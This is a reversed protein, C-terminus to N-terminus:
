LGEPYKGFMERCRVLCVSILDFYLSGVFLHSWSEEALEVLDAREAVLSALVEEDM